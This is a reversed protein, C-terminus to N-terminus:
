KRTGPCHVAFEPQKGWPFALLWLVASDVKNKIRDQKLKSEQVALIIM